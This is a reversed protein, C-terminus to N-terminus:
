KKGEEVHDSSGISFRSLADGVVNEKTPHYLISIDDDKLLELQRRQRLNLKKQTFQASPEQPGHLCGCSNQLSLSVPDILAYVDTSFVIHMSTVVDPLNEQDHRSAMAYLHEEPQGKLLEEQLLNTPYTRGCKACPPSLLRQAMSKRSLARLDFIKLNMNRHDNWNRPAPASTSSPTPGSLRKAERPERPFFRRFFVNEFLDCSLLLAGNVRKLKRHYCWIRSIGKLQYPALEVCEIIKSGM